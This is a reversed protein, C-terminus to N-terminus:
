ARDRFRQNRRGDTQQDRDRCHRREIGKLTTDLDDDAIGLGQRVDHQRVHLGDVLRTWRITEALGRKITRLGSVIGADQAELADAGDVVSGWTRKGELFPIWIM